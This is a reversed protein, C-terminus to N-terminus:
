ESPKKEVWRRLYRLLGPMAEIMADRCEQYDAVDGGYPDPIDGGAAGDTFERMLFIDDPLREFRQELARLHSATMAVLVDTDDLLEQSVPRSRHDELSVGVSRLVRVSNASAPQGVGAAVGCSASQFHAALAPEAALAHALLREAMPSRCTNGTCVFTVYRKKM